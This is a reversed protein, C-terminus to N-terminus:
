FMAVWKTELWFIFGLWEVKSHEVNTERRRGSKRGAKDVCPLSRHSPRSSRVREKLRIWQEMRDLSVM